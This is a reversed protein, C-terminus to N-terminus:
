MRRPLDAQDYFVALFRPPKTLSYALWYRGEKMWREGPHALQPYPRPAPLGSQPNQRIRASARELALRLNRIAEPREKREYHARLDAVHRAAEPALPLM